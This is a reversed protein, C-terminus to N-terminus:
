LVSNANVRRQDRSRPAKCSCAHHRAIKPDQLFSSTRAMQPRKTPPRRTSSCSGAPSSGRSRLTPRLPARRWGERLGRFGERVEARRGGFGLVRPQSEELAAGPREREGAHLVHGHCDCRARPRLRLFLSHEYLSDQGSDWYIHEEGDKYTAVCPTGARVHHPYTVGPQAMPATTAKVFLTCCGRV